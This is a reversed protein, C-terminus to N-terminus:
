KGTWNNRIAALILGPTNRIGTKDFLRTKHGEVTRHSINLEVAIHSTSFGHVLLNLIQKERKTFTIEEMKDSILLDKRDKKSAISILLDNSFYFEGKIVKEIADILESRGSKKLVFGRAGAQIMQYYYNEEGFMTLAIIKMDPYKLLAQRTAKIGDMEPMSIDMLAVDPRIDDLLKLFHKGNEAEGALIFGSADQLLFKLGERFMLHDDVIVIKIQREM